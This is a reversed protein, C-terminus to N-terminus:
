HKDIYAKNYAKVVATSIATAAKYFSHRASTISSTTHWHCIRKQWLMDPVPRAAAQRPKKNRPQATGVAAAEESAAAAETAAAETVATAEAAETAAAAEADQIEPQVSRKAPVDQTNSAKAPHGISQLTNKISVVAEDFEQRQKASLTCFAADISTGLAM